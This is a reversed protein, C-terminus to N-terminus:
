RMVAADGVVGVLVFAPGWGGPSSGCRLLMEPNVLGRAWDAAQDAIGPSYELILNEVDRQQFLRKASRFVQPEFGEM